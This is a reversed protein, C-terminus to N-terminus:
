FPIDDDFDVSPQGQPQRPAESQQGSYHQTNIKREDKDKLNAVMKDITTATKGEVKEAITQRTDPYFPIRIDMGYTDDGNNKTRLIKQLVLGVRKGAFEPTIVHSASIMHSTVQRVGCCGMIAQVMSQGFQNASGDKKKCCISLYSVKRGDDAEGSFEIFEAGHQSKTIKAESITIVYAGSENIFGGQGASMATEQNYTFIVNSM